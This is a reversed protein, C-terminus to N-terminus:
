ISVGIHVPSIGFGLGFHFCVSVTSESGSSESGSSESGSSESGSSESGSSEGVLSLAM